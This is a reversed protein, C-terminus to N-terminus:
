KRKKPKIESRFGYAVRLAIWDWGSNFLYNYRLTADWLGKKQKKTMIGPGFSIATFSKNRDLAGGPFVSGFDVGAHFTQQENFYEYGLRIITFNTEISTAKTTFESYDIGGSFFSSNAFQAYAKFNLSWSLDYGSGTALNLGPGFTLIGYKQSFASLCTVCVLISFLFRM